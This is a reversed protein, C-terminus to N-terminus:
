RSFKWDKFTNKRRSIKSIPAAVDSSSISSTLIVRLSSLGLKLEVFDKVFAIRLSASILLSKDFALALLNLAEANPLLYTLNNFDSHTDSILIDKLPPSANAIDLHSPISKRKLMDQKTLSLDPM